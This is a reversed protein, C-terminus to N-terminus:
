GALRWQSPDVLCPDNIAFRAFEASAPAPTNTFGVIEALEAACTVGLVIADANTQSLAFYLAGQLRTWQHQAVFRFFEEMKPRYAAFCAPIAAYEMLLLGQLFISRLHIEVGLGHLKELHGSALLRQDFVNLPCQMLQPTFIELVADIQEGDYVSVGLKEILGQRALDQMMGLLLEGGPRTLDRAHHVLLGYVKELRLNELSRLFTTRSAAVQPQRITDGDLPCTKTVVRFAPRGQLAAGLRAESRGYAPATDLYEIGNAAAMALISAIENQPTMGGRNSVGYDLGFQATGLGLKM